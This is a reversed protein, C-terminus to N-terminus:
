TVVLAQPAASKMLTRLWKMQTSTESECSNVVDGLGDDRAGKAAQGVITWTIDSEAAMLYLDHLDRLLGLGGQRTGTFIASHLRDPEDDAQEGYRVAFPQVLHAHRDCQAAFRGCGHVIDPEDKHQEGVDRFADALDLEARHLLGLYHALNM